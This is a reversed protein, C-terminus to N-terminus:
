NQHSQMFPRLLFLPQFRETRNQRLRVSTKMLLRGAIDDGIRSQLKTDLFQDPQIRLNASVNLLAPREAWIAFTREFPFTEVSAAASAMRRSFLTRPQTFCGFFM